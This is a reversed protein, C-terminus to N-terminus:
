LISMPEDRASLGSVTGSVWDRLDKEPRGFFVGATKKATPFQKFFKCRALKRAAPLLRSFTAMESFVQPASFRKM